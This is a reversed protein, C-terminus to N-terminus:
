IEIIRADHAYLLASQYAPEAQQKIGAKFQTVDSDLQAQMQKIFDGEVKGYLFFGLVILATWFGGLVMFIIKSLLSFQMVKDFWKM